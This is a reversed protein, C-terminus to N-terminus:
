HTITVPASEVGVWFIAGNLAVTARFKVEGSLNESPTWTFTASQKDFKPDHKKHTIANGATGCNLLQAFPDNPDVTFTGVIEEGKRAQMLLGRITDSPKVGSITIELPTGARVATSSTTIVYPAASKQPPVPHRPIMDKCASEPAGVSYGEAYALVAVVVM